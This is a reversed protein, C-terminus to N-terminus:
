KEEKLILKIGPMADFPAQNKDNEWAFVEGYGTSSFKFDKIDEIKIKKSAHQYSAYISGRYEVNFTQTISNIKNDLLNYIAAYGRHSNYSYLPELGLNSFTSFNDDLFITDSLRVGMIDYSRNHPNKKWVTTFIIRCLNERELCNASLSIKKNDNEYEVPEIFIWDDNAETGIKSSDELNLPEVDEIKDDLDNHTKYSFIQNNIYDLRANLKMKSIQKEDEIELYLNDIIALLNVANGEEQHNLNIYLPESGTSSFLLKYEEDDEYYVSIKYEKGSAINDKTEKNIISGIQMYSKQKSIVVLSQSLSFKENEGTIIFIRMSNFNYLFYTLFFLIILIIVIIFIYKLKKNTKKESKNTINLALTNIREKNSDNIFEGAIIENVSVNFLESLLILSHADPANIGREWKGVAERSVFILSALQNQTLKNKKRLKMIFEGIKLLDM